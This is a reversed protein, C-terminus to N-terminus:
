SLKLIESTSLVKVEKQSKLRKDNSWLPCSLKLALAFYESDNPDPSIARAKPRASEYEISPIIIIRSLIASLVINLEVESCGTKEKLLPRYKDIEELLFEPSVLELDKSFLLERTVGESSIFDAFLINADIVAKM